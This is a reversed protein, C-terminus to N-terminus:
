VLEVYKARKKENTEMTLEQLLVQESTVSLLVTSKTASNESLKCRICRPWNEEPATPLSTVGDEGVPVLQGAKYVIHGCFSGPPRPKVAQERRAWATQWM